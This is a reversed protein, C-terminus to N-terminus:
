KKNNKSEIHKTKKKGNYWLVIILFISEDQMKQSGSIIKHPKHVTLYDQSSKSSVNFPVSKSSICIFSTYKLLCLWTPIM